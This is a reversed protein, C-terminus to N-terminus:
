EPRVAANGNRSYGAFYRRTLKLALPSLLLIAILNPIAMLGNAIDCLAWVLELDMVAGVPLLVCFLQRYRRIARDGFLYVTDRDGYYSWGVVSSFSFFILSVTVAVKNNRICESRIGGYVM